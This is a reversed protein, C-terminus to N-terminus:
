TNLNLSIRNEIENVLNLQSSKFLHGYTKLVQDVNDGIRDAIAYLKTLDGGDTENIIFSVHSHRLDHPTITTLPKHKSAINIYHKFKRRLTEPAIPATNGFVFGIVNNDIIHKQLRHMIQMPMLIDRYSNKSKPAKEVYKVDKSKKRTKYSTQQEIVFKNAKFDVKEIRLGFLESKRCGSYYLCDFFLAWYPDDVFNIFQLYQSNDWFNISTKISKNKFNQVKNYEKLLNTNYFNDLFRFFSGLKGFIKSKYNYSFNKIINKFQRIDHDTIHNFDKYELYPMIHNDFLSKDTIYTSEEVEREIEIYKFYANKAEEFNIVKEPM